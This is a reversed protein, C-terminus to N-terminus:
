CGRMPPLSRLWAEAADRPILTKHGAKVARLRGAAIEEYCRTRGTNYLECFNRISLAGLPKELPRDPTTMKTHGQQEGKSM